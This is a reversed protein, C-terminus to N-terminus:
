KGSALRAGLIAFTGGIIFPFTLKEGLLVIALSITVIPLLYTFLSAVAASAVKLAYQYILYFTGALIGTCLIAIWHKLEIGTPLATQLENIMFPLCLLAAIVCFYFSLMLASAHTQQLYKRNMIGYAIFPLTSLFLLINGTLAMLPVRQEFLPLLVIIGVGFLGLIIGLTQKKHMTEQKTLFLYLATIAPVSAYIFAFISTQTYQIAIFVLIPSLAGIIGVPLYKKLPAPNTKNALLIFPLLLLTALFFRLFSITFPQFVELAVKAAIVVPGGCLATLFALFFPNRKLNHM